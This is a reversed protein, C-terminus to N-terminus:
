MKSGFKTFILCFDHWDDFSWNRKIIFCIIYAFFPPNVHCLSGEEWEEKNGIIRIIYVLYDFDDM